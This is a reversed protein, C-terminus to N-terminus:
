CSRDACALLSPFTVLLLRRLAFHIAFFNHHPRSALLSAVLLLNKSIYSPQAICKSDSQELRREYSREEGGRVECNAGFVRSYDLSPGSPLDNLSSPPLKEDFVMRRVNVAREYDELTKELMHDKIEGNQSSYLTEIMMFFLM